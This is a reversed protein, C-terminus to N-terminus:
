RKGHRHTKPRAPVFNDVPQKGIAGSNLEDLTFEYIPYSEFSSAGYEAIYDTRGKKAKELTSFLGLDYSGDYDGIVGKLLFM